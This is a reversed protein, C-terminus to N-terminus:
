PYSRGMNFGGGSNGIPARFSGLTNGLSTQFSKLFPNMGITTQTSSGTQNMTRLGALGQGLMQNNQMIPQQVQAQGGVALNLLQMLNQLNFQAANTRIDAATRGSIQAATGSDLIGAQQFQPYLDQLSQGVIDNTVGQDIGGPLQNLYGPLNQGQLLSNILGGANSNLQRQIPDFATAQGLQSAQLQREEPTATYKTETQTQATQQTKDKGM